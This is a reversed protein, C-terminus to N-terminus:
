PKAATGPPSGRGVLGTVAQLVEPPVLWLGSLNGPLKGDWKAIADIAAKAKLTDLYPALKRADYASNISQQVDPDFTFTGAWGIYDLTIGRAGFFAAAGKQVSDLIVSAQENARDLTRSSFENCVMTQVAGRGVGDMVETLTRGYFVSTFIV